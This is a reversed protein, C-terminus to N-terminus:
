TFRGITLFGLPFWLFYLLCNLLCTRTKLMRKRSSINSDLFRGYHSQSIPPQLTSSMMCVSCIDVAVRCRLVKLTSIAAAGVVDVDDGTISWDSREPKDDSDVGRSVKLDADNDGGGTADDDGDIAGAVAVTTTAAPQAIGEVADEEGGEVLGGDALLSPFLLEGFCAAVTVGSVAPHACGSFPVPRSPAGSTM